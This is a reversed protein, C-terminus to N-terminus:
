KKVSRVGAGSAQARRECMAPVRQEAEVQERLEAAQRDAALAAARVRPRVRAAARRRPADRSARRPACEHLMAYQLDAAATVYIDDDERRRGAVGRAGRPADSENRSSLVRLLGPRVAAELAHSGSETDETIELLIDNDSVSM